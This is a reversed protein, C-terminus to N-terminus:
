VKRAGWGKEKTKAKRKRCGRTANEMSGGMEVRREEGKMKQELKRAMEKGSM